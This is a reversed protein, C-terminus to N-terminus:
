VSCCPPKATLPVTLKALKNENGTIEAVGVRMVNKDNAEVAVVFM